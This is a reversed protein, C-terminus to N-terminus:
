YGCSSIWKNPPDAGKQLGMFLEIFKSKLVNAPAFHPHQEQGKQFTKADSKGFLSRRDLARLTPRRGCVAFDEKIELAGCFPHIDLRPKVSPLRVLPPSGKDWLAKILGRNAKKKSPCTCITLKLKFYVQVTGFYELLFIEM